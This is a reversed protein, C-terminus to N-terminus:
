QTIEVLLTRDVTVDSSPGTVQFVLEYPGTEPLGNLAIANGYMYLDGIVRSVDLRLELPQGISVGNKKVQVRSLLEVVGEEDFAPRVLFGLYTIQSARTLEPGSIPTLHWGGVTFASGREAEPTPTVGLGFWLPSLWTGETPISSVDAELNRIVQPESAAVGVIDISYSGEQLPFTLHYFKGYQGPTPQAAIEFHSVVERNSGKVRGVLLDLDPADHPLELHVWLPRHIDDAVGLESFVVASDDFPAKGDDLWALHDPSAPAGGAV